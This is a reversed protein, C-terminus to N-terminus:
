NSHLLYILESNCHLFLCKARMYAFVSNSVLVKSPLIEVAPSPLHVDREPVMSVGSHNARDHPLLAPLCQALLSPARM